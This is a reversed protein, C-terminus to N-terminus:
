LMAVLNGPGRIAKADAEDDITVLQSNEIADAALRDILDIEDVGVAGRRRPDDATHRKRLDIFVSIALAALVAVTLLDFVAFPALNSISTLARQIWPYVTTSYAREVWSPPLPAIAAVLATAVVAVPLVRRKSRDRWSVDSFRM